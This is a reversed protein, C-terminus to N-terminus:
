GPAYVGPTLAPLLQTDLTEMWRQIGVPVAHCHWQTSPRRSHQSGMCTENGLQVQGHLLELQRRSVNM